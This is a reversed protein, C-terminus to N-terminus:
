SKFKLHQKIVAMAPNNVLLTGNVTFTPTGVAGNPIRHAALLTNFENMRVPDRDIFYEAFSIGASNLRRRKEVCYPCTTLSYMVVQNGPALTAAINAEAMVTDPAILLRTGYYLVGIVILYKFLRAM